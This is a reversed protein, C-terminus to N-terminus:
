TLLEVPQVTCTMLYGFILCWPFLYLPVIEEIIEEIM